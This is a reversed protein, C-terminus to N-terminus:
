GSLFINEFSLAMPLSKASICFKLLIKFIFYPSIAWYVPPSKINQGFIFLFNKFFVCFNHM